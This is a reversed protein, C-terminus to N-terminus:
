YGGSRPVWGDNSNIIDDYMDRWNGSTNNEKNILSADKFVDNVDKVVPAKEKIVPAKEKKNGYLEEWKEVIKFDNNDDFSVVCGSKNILYQVDHLLRKNRSKKPHKFGLSNKSHVTIKCPEKIQGLAMYLAHLTAM